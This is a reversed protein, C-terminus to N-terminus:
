PKEGEENKPKPPLKVRAPRIKMAGAVPIEIEPLIPPPLIEVPGFVIAQIRVSERAAALDAEHRRLMPGYDILTLALRPPEVLIRPM